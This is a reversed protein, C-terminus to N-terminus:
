LNDIELQQTALESAFCKTYMAPYRAYGGTGFKEKIHAISSAMNEDFNMEPNNKLRYNVARDVMDSVSGPLERDASNILECFEYKFEGKFSARHQRCAMAVLYRETGGLYKHVLPHDSEMMWNYSHEHHLERSWAFMDHFYAAFMIMEESYFLNLRENIVKGCKFVAEFHKAKHADDNLNWFSGFQRVIEDRLIDVAM